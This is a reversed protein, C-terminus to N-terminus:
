MEYLVCFSCLLFSSCVDIIGAYCSTGTSMGLSDLMFSAHVAAVSFLAFKFRIDDAAGDNPLSCPLGADM